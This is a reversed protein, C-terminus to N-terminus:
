VGLVAKIQQTVTDIDQMGDVRKLLGKAEYYTAVQATQEEYVKVRQMLITETDDLRASNPQAAIRSNIRDGLIATDVVLELVADLKINKEELMKDLAEAQAVNRPFGDLIFGKACAPASMHEGIIDIVLRDPVLDGQAMIDKVQRGIETDAAVAARLMDGTSLQSLNHTRALTQAQTGKGAGPLGLFVLRM